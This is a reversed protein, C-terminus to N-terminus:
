NNLRKASDLAMAARRYLEDPSHQETESVACYGVAVQLSLNTKTQGGIGLAFPLGEVALAYREGALQAQEATCPYLIAMFEDGSMRGVLESGRACAALRSAVETLVRDGVADGHEENIHRFRRVDLLLVTLPHQERHALAQTKDLFSMLARRNAVQTLADQAASELVWGHTQELLQHQWAQQRIAALMDLQNVAVSSLAALVRGDRDSLTRPEPAMVCLVGVLAGNSAILGCAAVHRVAWPGLVWEHQAWAPDTRADAVHCFGRELVDTHGLGWAMAANTESLGVAAKIWLTAGDTLGIFAMPVGLSVAAAEVLRQLAADPSQLDADLAQLAAARLTATHSAQQAQLNM